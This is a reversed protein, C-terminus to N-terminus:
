TLTSEKTKPQGKEDLAPKGDKDTIPEDYSTPQVVAAKAYAGFTQVVGQSVLILALVFSVPLLIYLTTRTLDVWFNGVTASSRRAFGRIMAVLVAMGAAASVFNQVTLGLMQTLYSMTTEGGYGQWNTNTAFSVATNFSSDPSVAGFQQPNLPLVGQVRQLGYVALLGALNFLLMTAAYTKWGMEEAPRVGSLRYILRELWGFVGNLGCPRGEYVRAMYAGLPKALALLVILYIALQFMANATM